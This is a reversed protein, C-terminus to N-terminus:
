FRSLVTSATVKSNHIVQIIVTTRKVLAYKMLKRRDYDRYRPSYVLLPFYNTTDDLVLFAHCNKTTTKKKILTDELSLFM